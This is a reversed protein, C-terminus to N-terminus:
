DDDFDVLASDPIRILRGKRVARLWRRAIWNRVTRPVVRYRNAVEQITFYKGEDSSRGTTSDTM